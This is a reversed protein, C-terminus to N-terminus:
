AHVNMSYGRPETANYPQNEGVCLSENERLSVVLKEALEHCQDWLVGYHWPRQFDQMVPTFSHVSFVIPATHRKVLEDVLAKHRNHYPTFIEDMRQQRQEFTLGQNGRIEHGDSVEPILGPDGPHRNLDVVLRSYNAMLLPASFKESLMIAVQKAGIDYAIHQELLDDSISLGMLSEPIRNDAHDCTILISADGDENLVDYPPPESSNIM